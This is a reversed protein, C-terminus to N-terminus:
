PSFELNNIRKITATRLSKSLLWLSLPYLTNLKGILIQTEYLLYLRYRYHTFTVISGRSNSLLWNSKYFLSRFLKLCYSVQDSIRISVDHDGKAILVEVPPLESIKHNEVTARMSNKFLEFMIHYLHPPPYVLSLPIKKGNENIVKLQGLFLIFYLYLGNEM